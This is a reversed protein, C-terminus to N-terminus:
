VVTKPETHFLSRGYFEQQQYSRFGQHVSGIIREVHIRINTIKRANKANIPALQTCNRTFYTLLLNCHVDSVLGIELSLVSAGRLGLTRFSLAMRVIRAIMTTTSIMFRSVAFEFFIASSTVHLSM